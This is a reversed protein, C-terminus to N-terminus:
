ADPHVRPLRHELAETLQDTTLQASVGQATGDENVWGSVPGVEEMESKQRHHPLTVGLDGLQRVLLHDLATQNPNPLAFPRVDAEAGNFVKQEQTASVPQRRLRLAQRDGGGALAVM